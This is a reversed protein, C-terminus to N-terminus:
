LYQYITRRSVNLDRALKAKPIGLAIQEKLFLVQGADLSPKHGKYLNKAKALEIAEKQRERILVSLSLM